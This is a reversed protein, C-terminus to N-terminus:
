MKTPCMIKILHHSHVLFYHIIVFWLLFMSMIRYKLNKLKNKQWVYVSKDFNGHLVTYKFFAEPQLSDM